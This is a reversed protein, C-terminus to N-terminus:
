VDTAGWHIDMGHAGCTALLEDRGGPWSTLRVEFTRHAPEMRLLFLPADPTARIGAEQLATLCEDQASGALYQWFVSHFVVTAMGPTAHDLQGLLWAAADARDVTVPVAGAVELAGRLLTLRHSQDPWVYSLLTLRGEESALDVPAADCGRREAVVVAGDAPVPPPASTFCGDLEVPSDPQGWTWGGCRYHYHDWRLNLGGSAGLELLRMPLGTVGAVQLFGGLLAASRGVENTQVGRNLLDRVSEFKRQVTGLVAVWAAAADGDGGTSPLRAALDPADGELALRHLGGFLRLALASPGPDPEHGALVDRMIGGAEVDAAAREMLEAYLPSGLDACARGQTRLRRALVARAESEAM